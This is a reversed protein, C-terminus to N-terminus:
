IMRMCVYSVRDNVNFQTVDLALENVMAGSAAFEWTYNARLMTVVEDEFSRSAFSHEFEASLGFPTNAINVPDHRGADVGRM